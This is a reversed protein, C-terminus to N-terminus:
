KPLLLSLKVIMLEGALLRKVLNATQHKLYDGALLKRRILHGTKDRNAVRWHQWLGLIRVSLTRLRPVNM